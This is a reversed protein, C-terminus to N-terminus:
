WRKEARTLIVDKIKRARAKAAQNALSSQLSTYDWPGDLFRSRTSGTISVQAGGDSTAGVTVILQMQENLLQGGMVGPDSPAPGWETRILGNYKDASEITLGYEQLVTLATAYTVEVAPTLEVHRVEIPGTTGSIPDPNTNEVCCSCTFVGIACALSATVVSCLRTM